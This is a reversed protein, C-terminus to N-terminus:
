EDPWDAIQRTKYFPWRTYPSFLLEDHILALKHDNYGYKIRDLVCNRLIPIIEVHNKRQALKIISKGNNNHSIVNAGNNLLLHVMEINPLDRTVAVALSTLGGMGKRNVDAGYKILMNVLTYNNIHVALNLPLANYIDCTHVNAGASLLQAVIMLYERRCAIHLATNGQNNGHNINIGQQDLLLEVMRYNGFRCALILATNNWENCYNIDIGNNIYNIVAVYNDECVSKLFLDEKTTM